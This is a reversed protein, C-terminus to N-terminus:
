HFYFIAFSYTLLNIKQLWLLSTVHMQITLKKERPPPHPHQIKQEWHTGLMNGLNGIHEGVLEWYSKM